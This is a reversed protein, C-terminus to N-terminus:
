VQRMHNRLMRAAVLSFNYRDTVGDANMGYTMDCVILPQTRGFATFSRLSCHPFEYPKVQGAAVAEYTDHITQPLDPRAAPGEISLTTSAGVVTKHPGFLYLQVYASVVAGDPTLTTRGYTTSNGDARLHQFQQMEDVIIDAAAREFAAVVQGAGAISEEDLSGDVPRNGLAVADVVDSFAVRTPEAESLVNYVYEQEAAGVEKGEPMTTSLVLDDGALQEAPSQHHPVELDDYRRVVGEADARYTYSSGLEGAAPVFSLRMESKSTVKVYVIGEDSRRELAVVSYEGDLDEYTDTYDDHRTLVTTIQENHADRDAPADAAHDPTDFQEVGFPRPADGAAEPAPPPDDPPVDGGSGGEVPEDPADPEEEAVLAPDFGICETGPPLEAPVQSVYPTGDDPWENCEYMNKFGLSRAVV